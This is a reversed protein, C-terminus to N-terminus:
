DSTGKDAFSQKVWNSVDKDTELVDLKGNSAGRMAIYGDMHQM